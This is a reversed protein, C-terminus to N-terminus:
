LNDEGSENHKTPPEYTIGLGGEARFCRVVTKPFRWIVNNVFETQNEEDPPGFKEILADRLTQQMGFGNPVHRVAGDAGPTALVIKVVVDDEFILEPILTIGRVKVEDIVLRTNREWDRLAIQNSLESAAHDVAAIYEDSKHDLRKPSVRQANQGKKKPQIVVDRGHFGLDVFSELTGELNKEIKRPSQGVVPSDRYEVVKWIRPKLLDLLREAAKVVPTNKDQDNAQRIIQNAEALAAPLNAMAGNLMLPRAKQPDQEIHARDGLAAIAQHRPMGLRVDNWGAPDKEPDAGLALGRFSM